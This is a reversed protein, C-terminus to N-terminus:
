VAARRSSRMPRTTRAATTSATTRPRRNTIGPIRVKVGELDLMRHKMAIGERASFGALSGDSAVVRHCPVVLPVPNHAMAGGVARAARPRGVRRALDGYTICQGHPIRRCAELVRRRFPTVGSLDLPCDFGAPRGAFYDAIQRQLRRAVSADHVAGPWCRRAWRHVAPVTPEPLLVGCLGKESCVIGVYGWDTRVAAYKLMFDNDPPRVLPCPRGRRDPLLGVDAKGRLANM